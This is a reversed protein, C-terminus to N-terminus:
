EKTYLKFWITERNLKYDKSDEGVIQSDYDIILYDGVKVKEEIDTSNIVYIKRDEMQFQLVDVINRGVEDVYYIDADNKGNESIYSAVRLDIRNVESSKFISNKSLIIALVIEIVIMVNLLITKWGRGRSLYICGFIVASFTTGTLWASIYDWVIDFSFDNWFYSIGAVFYSHMNNLETSKSYLITIVVLILSTVTVGIFYRLKHRSRMVQRIGLCMFVPLIYDNYRGYSISDLKQPNNMYAATIMLQALMSLLIFFCVLQKPKIEYKWKWRRFLLITQKILLWVAIFFTGFSAETLYFLKGLIGLGLKKLGEATLMYRITYLQGSFDNGAMISEDANSYVNRQVRLKLYVAVVGIVGIVCLAIIIFKRYKPNILAWIILVLIASAIVGITRMHMFYMLALPIILLGARWASPNDFFCIMLYVTLSFLFMLVAEVLTMQVYFSWVPYFVAFGICYVADIKPMKPYIRNMIGKFIFLSIGQLIMNVAIAVRYAVVGGGFLYLIPTLLISYGFAYYSGLSAVDSWDYGVNSAASAWYGFEDPFITFGYIHVLGYGMVCTLISIFLVFYQFFIGRRGTSLSSILQKISSLQM